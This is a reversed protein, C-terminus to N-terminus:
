NNLGWGYEAYELADGANILGNGFRIDRGSVGLDEATAKLVGYIEDRDTVGASILLAITGTVHPAAMSTGTFFYYAFHGCTYLNLTGGSKTPSPFTEQIVGDLYGDDNYDNSDGGPAVFDVGAGYSNEGYNSYDALEKRYNTAGVAITEPYGAPYSVGDHSADNGASAVIWVGSDHAFRCADRLIAGAGPGGFSINIVAAGANIAYYVAEAMYYDNSCGCSDSIKVPILTCLHAIGAVGRNNDTSQAITGAVHTGHGEDDWAYPDNYYYDWPGWFPTENFDNAKCYQILGSYLTPSCCQLQEQDAGDSYAIGTDLVAVRVAPDGRSVEWAREVDIQPFHWQLDYYRDDPRWCPYRYFNPEVCAVEPLASFVAVAQEVTMGAPVSIRRVQSLPARALIRCGAEI